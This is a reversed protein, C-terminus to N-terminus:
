IAEVEPRVFLVTSEVLGGSASEMLLPVTGYLSSDGDPLVHWTIRVLAMSWESVNVQATANPSCTENTLGSAYLCVEVSVPSTASPNNEADFVQVTSATLDPRITAPVEFTGDLPVLFVTSSPSGGESLDHRQVQSRGSQAWAFVPAVEGGVSPPPTTEEFGRRIGADSSSFSESTEQGLYIMSGLGLATLLGVLVGYEVFTSGKTARGRTGMWGM